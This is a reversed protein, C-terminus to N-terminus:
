LKRRRRALGAGLLGVGLLALTAPEPVRSITIVRIWDGPETVRMTLTLTNGSIIYCDNTGVACDPDNGELGRAGFAADPYITAAAGLFDSSAVELSGISDSMVGIIEGDFTWEVSFHEALQGSNGPGTNLFIMHSDVVTGAAITGGDVALDSTLLVGQAEDFGQQAENFAADDRVDDPAAIIQAAVGLNSDAGSVSVLGANAALPLTGLMFLTILRINRM